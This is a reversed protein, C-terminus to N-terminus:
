VKAGTHQLVYFAREAGEHASRIFDCIRYGEAMLPALLARNQLRWAKALAPADKVMQAYSAPVEVLVYPSGAALVTIPPPLPFGQENQEAILGLLQANALYEAFSPPTYTQNARAAISPNAVWWDVQLRDSTGLPSLGGANDTGYYDQQYVRSEGGLKRINLHANAALLPDYTWVVRQIGQALAAERQAMKLRFGLGRSRYREDVVMRKSYIYLWEAPPQQPTHPDIGVMGIVIGACFDGDMAALVHGGNAVISFLMHLPVVSDSQTGWYSQQLGISPLLEDLTTLPKISIETANSM